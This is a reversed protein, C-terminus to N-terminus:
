VAFRKYYNANAYTIGLESSVDKVSKGSRFLEIAQPKLTNNTKPQRATPSRKAVSKAVKTKKSKVLPSSFISNWKDEQQKPSLGLDPDVTNYAKWEERTMKDKM